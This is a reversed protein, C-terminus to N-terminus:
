HVEEEASLLTAKPYFLNKQCSLSSFGVKSWNGRREMTTQSHLQTQQDQKLRPGLKKRKVAKQYNEYKWSNDKTVHTPSLFRLHSRM